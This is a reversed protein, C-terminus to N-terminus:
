GHPNWLDVADCFNWFRGVRLQWPICELPKPVKMDGKMNIANLGNCSCNNQDVSTHPIWGMM